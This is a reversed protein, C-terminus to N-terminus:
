FIIHSDDWSCSTACMIVYSNILDVFAFKASDLHMFCPHLAYNHHFIFIINIYLYLFCTFSRSLFFRPPSNNCCKLSYNCVSNSLSSSFIVVFYFGWLVSLIFYIFLIFAEHEKSGGAFIPWYQSIVGDQESSALRGALYAPRRVLGLLVQRTAFGLFPVFLFIHLHSM